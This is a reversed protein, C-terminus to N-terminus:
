DEGKLESDFFRVMQRFSFRTQPLNENDWGHGAGPLTVLEFMQEREVMQDVLAITDSYLVVPDKTGHIIMLPDEIGAAQYLASQAEYRGPMDPGDPPGMIWMQAPYAHWVNTAPAGAIGAAYLGPKKALSMITMLGGYSSGWIGIRDPDAYGNDILYRVGSELDNIDMEGYSHLQTQNHDRGQGWSGRINVSLVIYGQGVLYQDLGWTPHSRRGGWQNQVADSYVSGVIVPYRRSPAFNAPLSLRALLPKGDVHSPFEIYGINAWTQDYFAPQPSRTVRESKGTQLGTVFLEPPMTDSSFWDAMYDFGPAYVPKHTGADPGSIREVKGGDFPVRYIQRDSLYSKNAVFYIQGRARDIDFSAIEWEGSTIQRPASGSTKQHYLHLWGDRDTLIVLGDDEPAWAVKWDPRIHKDDTLEYFTERAGSATDFVYVTHTKAEMDSGSVFLRKGDESLGYDWIHDHADPREFFQPASGDLRAMGLTSLTTEDGPFARTVRDTQLGDKTYYHIERVPMQRDDLQQFIVAKGDASWQYDSIYVRPDDYGVLRKARTGSKAATELVWLQGGPRDGKGEGQALGAIFALSTGDPGVSLSRIAPRDAEVQAVEGNASRLYLKGGLTFAVRGGALMVAQRVGAEEAEPVSDQGLHTLRTRKGTAPDYSWVDRFSYGEDNWLFLATSGDPSWSYGVPENGVLSKYQYLEDISLTTGAVDGAGAALPQSWQKPAQAWVSDVPVMALVAVGAALVCAARGGFFGTSRVRSDGM